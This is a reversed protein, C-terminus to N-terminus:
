KEGVKRRTMATRMNLLNKLSILGDELEKIRAAADGLEDYKKWLKRLDWPVMLGLAICVGVVTTWSPPQGWVDLAVFMLAAAPLYYITM